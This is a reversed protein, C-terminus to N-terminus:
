GTRREIVFMEFLGMLMVWAGMGYYLLVMALM